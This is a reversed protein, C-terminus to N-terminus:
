LEIYCLSQMLDSVASDSGALDQGVLSTKSIDLGPHDSQGFFSFLFFVELVIPHVSNKQLIFGKLKCEGTFWDIIKWINGFCFMRLRLPNGSIFILTDSMPSSPKVSEVAHPLFLVASELLGLLGFGLHSRM